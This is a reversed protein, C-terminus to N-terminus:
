YMKWSWKRPPPLSPQMWRRPIKQEKMLDQLNGSDNNWRDVSKEGTSYRVSLQREGASRQEEGAKGDIPKRFKSGQTSWLLRPNDVTRLGMLNEM